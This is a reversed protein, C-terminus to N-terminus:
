PLAFMAPIVHARRSSVDLGIKGKKEDFRGHILKALRAAAGTQGYFVL